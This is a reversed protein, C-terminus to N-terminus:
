SLCLIIKLKNLLCVLLCDFRINEYTHLRLWRDPAYLSAIFILFIRFYSSYITTVLKMGKRMCPMYREMTSPMTHYPMACLGTPLIFHLFISLPPLLDISCDKYLANYTRFVLFGELPEIFRFFIDKEVKIPLM